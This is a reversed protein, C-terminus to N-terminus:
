VIAPITLTFRGKAMVISNEERVVAPKWPFYSCGVEWSDGTTVFCRLIAIFNLLM